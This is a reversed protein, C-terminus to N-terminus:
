RLGTVKLVYASLLAVSIMAIGIFIKTLLKPVDIKHSNQTEEISSIRGGLDGISSKLQDSTGNLHTLNRDVSDLTNGFRGMQENQQKNMETQVEMLTSLRVLVDTNSELKEMRIAHNVIRSTNNEVMQELKAIREGQEMVM